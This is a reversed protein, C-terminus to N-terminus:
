RGFKLLKLTSKKKCVDTKITIEPQWHARFRAAIALMASGGGGGGVGRVRRLM